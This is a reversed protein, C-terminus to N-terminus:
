GISSGSAGAACFRGSRGAGCPGRAPGAGLAEGEVKWDGYNEGEFDAVVIDPEAAVAAACFGLSLVFLAAQRRVTKGGTSRRSTDRGVDAVAAPFPSIESNAVPDEVGPGRLTGCAGATEWILAWTIPVQMALCALGNHFPDVPQAIVQYQGAEFRNM